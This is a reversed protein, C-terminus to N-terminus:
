AKFTHKHFTSGLTVQECLQENIVLYVFIRSYDIIQKSVDTTVTRRMEEMLATKNVM